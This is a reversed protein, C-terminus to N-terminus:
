ARPKPFEQELLGHLRILRSLVLSKMAAHDEQKANLVLKVIYYEKDSQENVYAKLVPFDKTEEAVRKLVVYPDYRAPFEYRVNFFYDRNTYRIVAADTALVSNPLKMTQGEETELTTFFLGVQLVKGMYGPYIQDPSFYKYGPSAASQFPIHWTLVRVETGPRVQGAVLILIGAFFSGLTPQLALGLVLGGFTASALLASASFSIYSAAAAVAIMYGLVAVGNSAVLANDGLKGTLEKAVVIALERAVVVGGVLIMAAYLYKFAYEDSPFWSSAYVVGAVVAAVLVAVSTLRM